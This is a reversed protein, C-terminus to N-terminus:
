HRSSTQKGEKIGNLPIDPVRKNSPHSSLSIVHRKKMKEMVVYRESRKLTELLFFIEKIIWLHQIRV